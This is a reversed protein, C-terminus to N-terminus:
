KGVKALARKAALVARMEEDSLNSFDAATDDALAKQMAEKNELIGHMLTMLERFQLESDDGSSQVRKMVKRMELAGIVMADALMRELQGKPTVPLSTRADYANAREAWKYQLAIQPYEPSRRPRASQLWGAFLAFSTEDEDPQQHWPERQEGGDIARLKV